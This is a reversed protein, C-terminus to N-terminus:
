NKWVNFVNKAPNKSQEIEMLTPRKGVVKAQSTKSVMSEKNSRGPTSESVKLEEESADCLNQM